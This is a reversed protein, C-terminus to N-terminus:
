RKGKGKCGQHSQTGQKASGTVQKRVGILLLVHSGSGWWEEKLMYM